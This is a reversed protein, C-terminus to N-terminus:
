LPPPACQKLWKSHGKPSIFKQIGNEERLKVLIAPASQVGSNKKLEEQTYGKDKDCRYIAALVKYEGETLRIGNFEYENNKKEVRWLTGTVVRLYERIKETASDSSEAIDVGIIEDFHLGAYKMANSLLDVTDSIDSNEVNKRDRLLDLM